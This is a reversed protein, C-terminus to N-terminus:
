FRVGGGVFPGRLEVRAFDPSNKVNLNFNRYGATFFVNSAPRIKVGFDSNLFYGYKGLKFGSLEGFINVM